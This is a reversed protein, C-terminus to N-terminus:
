TEPQPSYKNSNPADYISETIDDLFKTFEARLCGPSILM